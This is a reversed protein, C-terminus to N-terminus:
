PRSPTVALRGPESRSGRWSRCGSRPPPPNPRPLPPERAVPSLGEMRRSTRSAVRRASGPRLPLKRVARRGGPRGSLMKQVVLSAPSRRWPANRATCFADQRISVQIETACLADQRSSFAIQVACFCGPPALLRNASRSVREPSAWTSVHRGKPHARAFLARPDASHFESGFLLEGGLASIRGTETSISVHNQQARAQRVDDRRTCVKARAGGSYTLM